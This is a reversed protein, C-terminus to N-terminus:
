EKWPDIAAYTSLRSGFWVPLNEPRGLYDAASNVPMKPGEKALTRPLLLEGTAWFRPSIKRLRLTPMLPVSLM